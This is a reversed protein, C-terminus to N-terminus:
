AAPNPQIVYVSSGSPDLFSLDRGWPMSGIAGYPLTVGAELLRAHLGEIDNTSLMIQPQVSLASQVRELAEGHLWQAPDQLVVEFGPQAPLGVTLWRATRGPGMDMPNDSVVQFGLLDRYFAIAADLDPVYRTTHTVATIM